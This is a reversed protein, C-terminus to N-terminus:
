KYNGTLIALDMMNVQGDSNLDAHLDWNAMGPKTGYALSLITLDALDIRGDNNIDGALLILPPLTLMGKELLAFGTVGPLYTPRRATITYRGLPLEISFYGEGDIEEIRYRTGEAQCVAYVELNIPSFPRHQLQLSGQLTAGESITYTFAAVKGPIDELFARAKIQTTATISIPEEYLASNRDPESGDLTYHIRTGPMASQLMVSVRNVYTGPPPVAAPAPVEIVAISLRATKGAFAASIETQGPALATVTGKDVKAAAPNTSRWELLAPDLSRLQTECFLAEARITTTEGKGLMSRQAFIRLEELDTLPRPYATVKIEDIYWGRGPGNGFSQLRFRIYLYHAGAPLELPFASQRFGESSGSFRHLRMWNQGDTSIEVTAADDERAEGLSLDYSHWFSLVPLHYACLHLPRGLTLWSSANNRYSGWPSDAFSFNGEHLKERTIKWPNQATTHWHMVGEEAGDHFLLADAPLDASTVAAAIDLIGYGYTSNPREGLANWAPDWRAATKLKHAMEAPSLGPRAQLLLAASGSVHAAATSTGSLAMHGGNLWASRIDTGPATIEPKIFSMGQWNVPGRSSFDTIKINGGEKKLAGASFAHPYSAPSGLGAISNNGAAFSVFIGAQDLNHLIEWHLYDSAHAPRSAWSCNIIHPANAPNGGPALLWQFAGTIYSDWTHGNDFINVGIWLAGPAVGMPEQPSGGMIIGAMHTGHGHPDRPGGGDAPAAGNATADFWSTSDDHGPLNGRYKHQLAPHYPDVGTDMIAVVINEGTFGQQWVAPANIVNLNWSVTGADTGESPKEAAATGGSGQLVTGSDLSPDLSLRSPDLSLRRDPRIERIQEQAALRQLSKSNVSAAFANVIWLARYDKINGAEIEQQLVPELGALSARTREQLANVVAAAARKGEQYPGAAAAGASLPAADDRLLAIVPVFEQDELAALVEPHIDARKTGGSAPPVTSWPALLLAACM